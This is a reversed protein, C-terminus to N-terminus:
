LGSHHLGTGVRPDSWPVPVGSRRCARRFTPRDTIGLYQEFEARAFGQRAFWIWSEARMATYLHAVLEFGAARVIARAAERSANLTFCVDTLLVRDRPAAVFAEVLASPIGRCVPTAALYETLSTQSIGSTARVIAELTAAPTLDAVEIIVARSEALQPLIGDPVSYGGCVVVVPKPLHKMECLSRSCLWLIQECGRYAGVDAPEAMRYRIGVQDLCSRIRSLVVPDVAAIVAGIRPVALFQCPLTRRAPPGGGRRRVPKNEVRTSEVTSDLMIVEAGHLM